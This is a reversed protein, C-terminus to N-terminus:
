GAQAMLLERITEAQGRGNPGGFKV